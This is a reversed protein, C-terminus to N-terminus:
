KFIKDLQQKLEEVTDASTMFQIKVAVNRTEFEQPAAVWGAIATKASAEFCPHTSELVQPDHTSGDRRVHHKLVVLGLTVEHQPVMKGNVRSTTKEYKVDDITLDPCSAPLQPSTQKVYEIPSLDMNLVEIKALASSNSFGILSAGFTGLLLAGSWRYKHPKPENEIIGSLRMKANRHGKSSLKATPCPLVERRANGEDSRLVNLLLAAYDKRESVSLDRTAARDARLEIALRWQQVLYGIGSNFLMADRLFLLILTLEADNHRLHEREHAILASRTELGSPIVVARRPWSLTLPPVGGTTTFVDPDVSPVLSLRQLRSWRWLTRSALIVGLGFYIALYNFPVPSAAADDSTQSSFVELADIKPLNFAADFPIACLLGPFISVLILGLWTNAAPFSAGVKGNHDNQLVWACGAVVITWLHVLVLAKIMMVARM